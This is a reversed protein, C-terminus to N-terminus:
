YYRSFDVRELGLEKLDEASPTRRNEVANAVAGAAAVMAVAERLGAWASKVFGMLSPASKYVMDSMVCRKKTRRGAGM